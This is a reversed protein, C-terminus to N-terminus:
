VSEERSSNVYHDLTKKLASYVLEPQGGGSADYISQAMREIEQAKVEIPPATLGSFSFLWHRIEALTWSRLPLPLAKEGSFREQTCCLGEALGGEPIPTQVVIMGVFRVLPYKPRVDPLRRVLSVWFDQVFWPLFNSQLSSADWTRLEVFVVSGSQLSGEIKRGIVQAYQRVALEDYKTDQEVPPPESGVYEGLRRLLTWADLRDTPLLGIEYHKFDATEESLLRKVREVCWRGGMSHANQLLFLAAGGQAEVFQSFVDGVLRLAEAFNIKPIDRDWQLDRHRRAQESSRMEYRSIKDEIDDIERELHEAQRKLILAQRDELTRGMQDLVAEYEEYLRDRQKNLIQYMRDSSLGPMDTKGYTPNLHTLNRM